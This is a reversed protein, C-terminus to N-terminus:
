LLLKEMFGKDKNKVDAEKDSALQCARKLKHEKELEADRRQAAAHQKVFSVLIFAIMAVVVWLVNRCSVMLKYEQVDFISSSATGDCYASGGDSCIKYLRYNVIGVSSIAALLLVILTV